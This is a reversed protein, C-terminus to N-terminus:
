FKMYKKMENIEALIKNDINEDANIVTFATEM